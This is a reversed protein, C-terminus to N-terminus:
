WTSSGSISVLGSPTQDIQLNRNLDRIHLIQQMEPIFHRILMFTPDPNTEIMLFGDNIDHKYFTITYKFKWSKEQTQLM